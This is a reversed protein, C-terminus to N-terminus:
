GRLVMALKGRTRYLPCHSSQDRSFAEHCAQEKFFRLMRRPWLHPVNTFPGLPGENTYMGRLWRREAYCQPDPRSPYLNIPVHRKGKECRRSTNMCSSSPWRGRVSPRPSV